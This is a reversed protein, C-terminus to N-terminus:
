IMLGLKDAVVAHMVFTALFSVLSMEALTQVLDTKRVRENIRNVVLFCHDTVFRLREKESHHERTNKEM